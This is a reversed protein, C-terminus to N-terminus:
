RRSLSAPPAFQPDIAHSSPPPTTGRDDRAVTYLSAGALVGALVLLLLITM